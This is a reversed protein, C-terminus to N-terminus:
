DFDKGRRYIRQNTSALHVGQERTHAPTPCDKLYKGTKIYDFSCKIYDPIQDMEYSTFLWLPLNFSELLYLLKCLESHRQDLPEGGLLWLNRVIRTNNQVLMKLRRFWRASYTQGASFDWSEPNHCGPCHQRCGAVYVELALHELSFQPEFVNINIEM